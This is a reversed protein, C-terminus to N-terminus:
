LDCSLVKRIQSNLDNPLPRNRNKQFDEISQLPTGWGMELCLTSGM